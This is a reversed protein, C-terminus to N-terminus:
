RCVRRRMAKSPPRSASAKAQELADLRAALKDLRHSLPQLRELVHADLVGALAKSIAAVESAKV